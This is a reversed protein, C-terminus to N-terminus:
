WWYKVFRYDYRAHICLTSMLVRRKPILAASNSLTAFNGVLESIACLDKVKQLLALDAEFEPLFETLGSLTM